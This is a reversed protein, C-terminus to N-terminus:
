HRRPTPPGESGTLHPRFGSSGDLTPSPTPVRAASVKPELNIVLSVVQGTLLSYQREVTGVGASTQAGPIQIAATNPPISGENLAHIRLVNRGPLYHVSYTRGANYLMVRTAVPLGNLEVTLSDGDEIGYDYFFLRGDPSTVTVDALQSVIRVPLVRADLVHGSSDVLLLPIGALGLRAGTAVSVHVAVQVTDGYAVSFSTADVSADLGTSPTWSRVSGDGALMGILLRIHSVGATDKTTVYLPVRMSEEEQVVRASDPVGLLTAQPAQPAITFMNIGPARRAASLGCQERAEKYGDSAPFAAPRSPAFVGTGAHATPSVTFALQAGYPGGKLTWDPSSSALGDLGDLAIPQYSELGSGVKHAHAWADVKKVFTELSAGLDLLKNVALVVPTSGALGAVRDRFALIVKEQANIKGITEKLSSLGILDVGVSVVDLVGVGMAILHVDAIGLGQSGPRYTQATLISTNGNPAPIFAKLIMVGHWADIASTFVLFVSALTAAPINVGPLFSVAATLGWLVTNIGSLVSALTDLTHLGSLGEQCQDQVRAPTMVGDPLLVNSSLSSVGGPALSSATGSGLAASRARLAAAMARVRPADAPSLSSGRRLVVSRVAPPRGGDPTRLLSPSTPSALGNGGSIGPQFAAMSALLQSAGRM